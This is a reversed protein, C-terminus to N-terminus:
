ASWQGIRRAPAKWPKSQGTRTTSNASPMTMCCCCGFRKRPQPGLSRWCPCTVMPTVSRWSPGAASEAGSVFPSKPATMSSTWRARTCCCLSAARPPTRSVSRAVLSGNPPIGYMDEAVPRMFDRDGGSAIYTAFDAAELYRLLEIMPQYGCERYPRKLGPNDAEGFFEKVRQDYDEVTVAEFAKPVAVMLLKIDSDDGHYHKVVAESLWQMDGEYAARYPQQTQLAPDEEALERFRRMTFGLQIVLPKETWLTGDNDFVAVRAAPEVYSPGGEKTVRAVFDTIASKTPGDNWSTLQSDM